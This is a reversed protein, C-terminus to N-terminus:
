REWQETQPRIKARRFWVLLFIPYIVSRTATWIVQFLLPGLFPREQAQGTYAAIALLPSAGALVITVIAYAMHLQIALRKRRFILVAAALLLTCALPQFLVLIIQAVTEPGGLLRPLTFFWGGRGFLVYNVGAQAFGGLLGLLGQAAVALSAGGIAYAWAPSDRGPEALPGPLAIGGGEPVSSM